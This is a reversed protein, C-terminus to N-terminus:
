RWANGVQIYFATKEPGRAVDIGAALGLRRAIVYRFGGGRSVVSGAEDFTTRRGWARGAGLFAVGVWRPTFYYRGEIEALATNEEQYRAAPVGRMDIFPLQYFPVDGRAARADLRMAGVMRDGFPHYAFLHTRYTEFDNDSGLANRALMVDLAGEIGTRTFFINDRSDFQYRFGIESTKQAFERPSLGAGSFDSRLTSALDLYLYRLGLFHDSDGLRRMAEHFTAWGKLSYALALDGGGIGYFDLNIKMASAGGRYRWRDEDFSLRAGAAGGRTGNETAFAAAVLMNPPTIRGGPRVRSAADRISESFWAAALGGGYGIAPETILIPVPLVGRHDLLYNSADFAGDEPDTFRERWGAAHAALAAFAFVLVLARRLM